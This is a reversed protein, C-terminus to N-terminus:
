EATRDPARKALHPLHIKAIRIDSSLVMGLIWPYDKAVDNTYYSAYLDDGRRVLGVYSTDGCSPLDTLHVLADTRARGSLDPLVAYLATRKKGLISGFQNLFGPSDPNHRGLGFVAGEYTFLAPGDLRTVRSKVHSWTTYPPEAVTILTAADKDGFINDSVELRATALIRGDPLFAMDTEDNRDGYYIESVMEWTAGDASKFLASRGHEWWYAPVYWTADDRTTPRWFLWGEPKVDKLPTWEVGDTSTTFATTYPEPNMAENKLVYLFLRGDIVALKPDRIDQDPVQFTAVQEWVRADPSRHLVLRCKESAFHWPSSAHVLYFRDRWYILDTNSNHMGDGVAVWSETVISPDVVATNPRWYWYALLALCGGVVLLVAASFWKLARKIMRRRGSARAPADAGPPDKIVM